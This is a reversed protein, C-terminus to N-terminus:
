GDQLKDAETEIEQRLVAQIKPTIMKRESLERLTSEEIRLVSHRATRLAVTACADPAQEYTAHMKRRSGILYHAYIERVHQFAHTGFIASTTKREMKKLTNLVTQSLVTNTRYYLYADSSSLACYEPAIMKQLAKFLRTCRACRLKRTHALTPRDCLDYQAHLKELIARYVRENVEGSIYLQRLQQRELGITYMRLIREGLTDNEHESLDRACDQRSLSLRQEHETRLADV